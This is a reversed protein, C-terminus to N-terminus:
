QKSTDQNKGEVDKDADPSKQIPPMSKLLDNIGKELPSSPKQGESTQESSTKGSPLSKLLDTIGSGPAPVQQANGDTMPQDTQKQGQKLIRDVLKNPDKKIEDIDKKTKEVLDSVDKKGQDLLEPAQKILDQTIMAKLDPRFKPDSVTGEIIIPVLLGQRQQTDGQGKLSAVVKPTVRLDLRSSRLDMKGGAVLRIFPSVLHTEKLDVLGDDITMQTKIETFDTKPREKPTEGLGFATKVNRAMQALDIGKIAGDQFRLNVQGKLSQKIAESDIGIMNLDIDTTASGEIIDKNLVDKLLPNIRVSNVGLKIANKPTDGSFDMKCNLQASGQYLDMKLPDIHIIGNKGSIQLRANKVEAKSVKLQDIGINGDIVLRRLPAYDIPKKESPDTSTKKEGPKKDDPPPLYRDLDIRDVHIKFGIDPKEFDKVDASFDVQTDDLKLKGQTVTIRDPSGKLQSTLSLSKLVEPDASKVPFPKGIASMIEKPAFPKVQTDIEFSPTDKTFNLTSKIIAGSRYFDVTFPDVKFVGNKGEVGIHINEVKANSVKLSGVVIDGKLALRRLPTYDPAKKKSSGEPAGPTEPKEAPPPLYRDLDMTDLNIKFRIDPAQFNKVDASFAMTSDDIKLKGGTVSVSRTTGKVQSQFSVRDLVASDSTTVPFDMGLSAMLKRPSFPEIETKIDFAPDQKINEALGALKITMRDNLRAIFDFPLKKLDLTKGIPGINGSLAIKREDFVASFDMAIPTEFSVNQLKLNMRSFHKQDSTTRDIMKLSGNEIVFEEIRLAQIPIVPTDPKDSPPTSKEPKAKKAGQDDKSDPKPLGMDQWNWKGNKLREIVIAPENMVFRKVQIDKSLLPILKVRVEFSTISVFDKEKFAEPNGLRLDSLHFGIWPFLSLRIDGLEFPRGTARSVEKEIRPIYDRVDVVQPIIVVAAISILCLAALIYIVIKIPKKM